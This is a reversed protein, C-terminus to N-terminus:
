HPPTQVLAEALRANPDASNGTGVPSHRLTARDPLRYDKTVAEGVDFLSTQDPGSEPDELLLPTPGPSDPEVVDPFENVADIPPAHPEPRLDLPPEVLRLEAAPVAATRARRAAEATARVAAHGSRRIVAGASAGTLLLAGAILTPVGVVLVATSGLADGMGLAFRAGVYGGHAKGLTLMLGA